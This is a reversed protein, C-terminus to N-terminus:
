RDLHIVQAEPVQAMEELQQIGEDESNPLLHGYVDLVTRVSTHGARRAIEKPSVGAKIWLSVATHRLDHIRLGEVGAAKTAPVWFRQRFRTRSLLNLGDASPFVYVNHVDVVDNDMREIHAVLEDTVFRPIKVRRKSAKTKLPGVSLRGSVETVQREIAISGRLLELDKVQLGAMEGIRLGGYAGVFVLARYRTDIAQALAQVETPVLFRMEEREVRPLKVDRIPNAPLPADNLMAKLLTLAKGVTAPAHGVLLKTKWANVDAPRIAGIPMDGFTPLIMSRFYSEDRAATSARVDRSALWEAAFDKILIKGKSPDVYSGVQLSREMEAAYAKAERKTAFTKARQKGAPDVWRARYKAHLGVKVKDVYAM